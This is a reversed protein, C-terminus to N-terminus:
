KPILVFGTFTTTGLRGYGTIWGRDNIATPVLSSWGAARVEPIQDLMTLVGNDYVFALGAGGGFNGIITGHDNIGSAQSNASSDPFLKRIGAGDDVFAHLVNAADYAGGVVDGRNNIGLAVGFRGGFTGLDKMAGNRYVFPHYSSNDAILSKGVADGKDNMADIESYGGGLTGIDVFVGDRYIFGHGWGSPSRYAGAIAGFKNITNPAVGSIPLPTWAGDSWTFNVGLGDGGLVTGRDNISRATSIPYGTPTRGLDIMTGNDWLFARVSTSQVPDLATAYGVVQGRNNIDLPTSGGFPALAPITIITWRAQPAADVAQTSASVLLSAVIATWNRTKM